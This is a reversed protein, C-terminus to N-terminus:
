PRLRCVGGQTVKATLRRLRLRACRVLGRPALWNRVSSLLLRDCESDCRRKWRLDDSFHSVGGGLNTRSAPASL